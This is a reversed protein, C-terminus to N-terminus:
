SGTIKDHASRGAEASAGSAKRMLELGTATLDGLRGASEDSKREGKALQREIWAQARRSRRPVVVGMVFLGILVLLFVPLLVRMADNHGALQV